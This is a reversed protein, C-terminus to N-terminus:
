STEISWINLAKGFEGQGPAGFEGGQGAGPPSEGGAGQPAGGPSQSPGGQGVDREDVQGFDGEQQQQPQIAAQQEAMWAGVLSQNLPATGYKDDPEYGIEARLEDVRLVLKQKEFLKDQDEEDLGVWRFCLDSNFESVLFDSFTQEYYSMLPRLGKDKAATLKEATDDGSLSSKSDSFSEFNIEAPDMGYISCTIATLFTMWKSFYMENFELGFKEFTAKSEQDSSVMVPLTWSNNVGKVMANWYRKFASLDEASYAGSLHLLGKPIANEDLGKLNHTLANLFGTVIKVLLEPEGLGYGALRVDARPNRVEYVLQEHTYATAVRGMVVQLAFIQDDGDYGDESCLRITSGDVAYFGDIGKNRDRKVETEIPASDMSLSDRLSKAMFGAFNDRKLAKRRRPSFEWGCNQFFRALEKAETAESGQLKHKRDIHRIEFGPGGDESISCFRNVQRVRTMVVASLIPVQEVMARLGDFGIPTQKEYYEGNAFVQMEDVTVSRMGRAPPPAFRGPYESLSTGSSAAKMVFADEELGRVFSVIDDGQQLSSALPRYITNLEAQADFRESVPASPNFAIEHATEAM